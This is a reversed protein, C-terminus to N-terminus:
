LEAAVTTPHNQPLRGVVTGGVHTFEPNLLGSLSIAELINAYRPM